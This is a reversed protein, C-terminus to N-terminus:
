LYNVRTMLLIRSCASIHPRERECGTHTARSLSVLVWLSNLYYVTFVSAFADTKVSQVIYLWFKVVNNRAMPVQCLVFIMSNIIISEYAYQVALLLQRMGHSEVVCMLQNVKIIQSLHAHNFLM